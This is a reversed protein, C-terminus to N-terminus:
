EAHKIIEGKESVQYGTAKEVSDSSIDWPTWPNSDAVIDDIEELSRNATELYLCEWMPIDVHSNGKRDESRLQRQKLMDTTFELPEAEDNTKERRRYIAYAPSLPLRSGTSM